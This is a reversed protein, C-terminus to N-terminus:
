RNISASEKPLKLLHNELTERTQLANIITPPTEIIQKIEIPVFWRQILKMPKQKM